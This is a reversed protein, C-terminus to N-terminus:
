PGLALSRACYKYLSCIYAQLARQSAQCCLAHLSGANQSSGSLTLSAAWFNLASQGELSMFEGLHLGLPGTSLNAKGARSFVADGRQHYGMSSWMKPFTNHCQSRIFYMHKPMDEVRGAKHTEHPLPTKMRCTASSHSNRPRPLYSLHMLVHM